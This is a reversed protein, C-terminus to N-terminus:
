FSRWKASSELNALYAQVETASDRVPCSGTSRRRQQSSAKIQNQRNLLKDRIRNGIDGYVGPSQAAVWQKSEPKRTILVRRNPFSRPCDTTATSTSTTSTSTTSTSTASDEHGVHFRAVEPFVKCHLQPAMAQISVEVGKGTGPTSSFEKQMQKVDNDVGQRNNTPLDDPQVRKQMAQIPCETSVRSASEEPIAQIRAELEKETGPNSSFEKQMQMMGSEVSQLNDTPLGVTQIKSDKEGNDKNIQQLSGNTNKQLDGKADRLQKQLGRIDQFLAHLDKATFDRLDQLGRIDQWLALFEDPVRRGNITGLGQDFMFEISRWSLDKSNVIKADDPGDDKALDFFLRIYISLSLVRIM